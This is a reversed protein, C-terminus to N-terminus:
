GLRLHARLGDRQGLINLVNSLAELRDPHAEAVGRFRLRGEPTWHGEGSLRLDGRLTSLAVTPAGGPTSVVLRYDGLPRLPSLASSAQRWELVLGGTWMLRGQQWQWGLGETQVLLRGQLQVSNWPTGLGALVSAPWESQHAAVSAGSWGLRLVLPERHCCPAWGQLRWEPGSSWAMGLSWHVPGPLAQRDLSGAGGTLLVDARGSWVSGQVNVLRVRGDTAAALAHALWQAPAFWLTGFLLGLLASGILAWPLRSRVVAGSRM